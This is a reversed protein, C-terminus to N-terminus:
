TNYFNQSKMWYDNQQSHELHCYEISSFVDVSVMEILFFCVLCFYITLISDVVLCLSVNILYFIIKLSEVATFFLKLYANVKSNCSPHFKFSYAIMYYPLFEM